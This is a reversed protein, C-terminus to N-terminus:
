KFSFIDRLGITVSALILSTYLCYWVVSKDNLLLQIASRHARKCIRWYVIPVASIALGILIGGAEGENLIVWVCVIMMLVLCLLKRKWRSDIGRLIRIGAIVPFAALWLFWLVSIAVILAEMEWKLPQSVIQIMLESEGFTCFFIYFMREFPSNLCGSCLYAFLFGIASVISWPSQRRM